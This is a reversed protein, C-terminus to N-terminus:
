LFISGSFVFTAPGELYIKNYQDDHFDFEVKLVGGLTIMEVQQVGKTEGFHHMALAGAVAGTGCALTENEVGREYTRIAFRTHSIKEIFNVNIGAAAYTDSYRIDAGEKKVDMLSLDEVLQVYHPSGTDLVVAEKQLDLQLVDQMHLRVQSPSLLQAEHLGDIAKFTTKTGIIQYRNAFAVTCRSGNGCLSSPNGDSNYYLMEFDAETTTEVLIVGDAGIGYNRDCLKKLQLQSLSSYVGSRNDLMIFDNGAGQYKDFSIKM